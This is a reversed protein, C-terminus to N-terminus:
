RQMPYLKTFPKGSNAQVVDGIASKLKRRKISSQTKVGSSLKRKGVDPSPKKPNDEPASSSEDKGKGGNLMLMQFANKKDSNQAAGSSHGDTNTDKPRVRIWNEKLKALSEDESGPNGSQVKTANKQKHKQHKKRKKLTKMVSEMNEMIQKGMNSGLQPTLINETTKIEVKKGPPTKASSNMLYDFITAM